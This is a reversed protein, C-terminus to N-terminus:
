LTLGNGSKTLEDAAADPDPRGRSGALHGLRYGHRIGLFYAAIAVLIAVSLIAAGLIYIKLDM